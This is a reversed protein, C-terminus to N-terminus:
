LGSVQAAATRLGLVKAERDGSTELRSVVSKAVASDPKRM